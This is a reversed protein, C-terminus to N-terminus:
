REKLARKILQQVSQDSGNHEIAKRVAQRAVSATMGLAVLAMVAEEGM